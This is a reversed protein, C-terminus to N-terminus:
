YELFNCRRVIGPKPQTVNSYKRLIDIPIRYELSWTVPEVIVPDVIQPLSHTIEIKEIDEISLKKFEKRPVVNYHM